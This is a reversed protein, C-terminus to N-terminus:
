VGSDQTEPRVPNAPLASRGANTGSSPVPSRGTGTSRPSHSASKVDSTLPDLRKVSEAVDIPFHHRLRKFILPKCRTVEQLCKTPQRAPHARGEELARDPVNVSVGVSLKSALAVLPDRSPDGDLRREPMFARAQWPTTVLKDILTSGFTPPVDTTPATHTFKSFISAPLRSDHRGAGHPQQCGRRRTGRRRDPRTAARWRVGDM